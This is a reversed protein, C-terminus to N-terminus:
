SKPPYKSSNAYCFEVFKAFTARDLIAWGAADCQDKLGHWATVLEESWYDSWDEFGVQVAHSPVFPEFASNDFEEDIDSWHQAEEEDGSSYM